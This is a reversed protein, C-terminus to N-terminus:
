LIASLLNILYNQEFNTKSACVYYPILLTNSLKQLYVACARIESEETPNGGEVKLTGGNWGSLLVAGQGVFTSGTAYFSPFKSPLSNSPVKFSREHSM